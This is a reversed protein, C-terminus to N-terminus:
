KIHNHNIINSNLSLSILKNNSEEPIYALRRHTCNEIADSMTYPVEEGRVRRYKRMGDDDRVHRDSLRAGFRGEETEWRHVNIVYKDGAREGPHIERPLTGWGGPEAPGRELM